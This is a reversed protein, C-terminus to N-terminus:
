PNDPSGCAWARASAADAFYRLELPLGAVPFAYAENILTRNLWDDSEILALRRLGSAALVPLIDTAVWALDEPAMPGLRRDDAIWATVQYQQVFAVAQQVTERFFASDAYDSWVAELSRCNINHLYFSVFPFSALLLM